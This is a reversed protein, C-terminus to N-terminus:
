MAPGSVMMMADRGELDKVLKHPLMGAEALAATACLRGHVRDFGVLRTGGRPVKLLVWIMPGCVAASLTSASAPAALDTRQRVALRHGGACLARLAFLVWTSPPGDVQRYACMVRM